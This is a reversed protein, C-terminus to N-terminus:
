KAKELMAAAQKIVQMIEETRDINFSFGKGPVYEGAKKFFSRVHVVTAKKFSTAYMRLREKGENFETELALFDVEAVPGNKRVKELSALLVPIQKNAFMLGRRTAVFTTSNPYCFYSRIDVKNNKLVAFRLEEMTNKKVTAVETANMFLTNNPAFTRRM